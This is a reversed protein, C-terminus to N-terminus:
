SGLLFQRAETLMPHMEIAEDSLEDDSEDQVKADITDYYSM